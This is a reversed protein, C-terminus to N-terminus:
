NCLSITLFRYVFLSLTLSLVLKLSISSSNSYAESLSLFDTLSLTLSLLLVPSLSLAFYLIFFRSDGSDCIFLAVPLALAVSLTLSLPPHTLLAIVSVSVPM